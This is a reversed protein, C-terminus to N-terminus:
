LLKDLLTRVEEIGNWADTWVVPSMPIADFGWWPGRFGSAIISAIIGEIDLVGRGLGLHTGFLNECTNNDCDNVGIDDVLKVIESPKVYIQGTEPEWMLTIGEEAALQAQKKFTNVVRDWIANYDADRALPGFSGPDVRMAPSGIDSAMSLCREFYAEYEKLVGEDGTAWPMCYPDPAYGAIELGAKEIREVLANRSANDPFQDPAAHGSFGAGLAIGDFGFASLVSIVTDLSAPNPFGFTFCWSGMYIKYDKAMVNM